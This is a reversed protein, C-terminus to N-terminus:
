SRKAQGGMCPDELRGGKVKEVDESRVDLEDVDAEDKPNSRTQQDDTPQKADRPDSM